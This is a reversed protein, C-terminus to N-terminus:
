YSQKTLYGQILQIYKWNTEDHNILWQKASDSLEKKAFYPEVDSSRKKPLSVKEFLM